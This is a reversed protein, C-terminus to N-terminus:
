NISNELEQEQKLRLCEDYYFQYDKYNDCDYNRRGINFEFSNKIDRFKTWNNLYTGYKEKYDKYNAIINDVNKFDNKTSDMDDQNFEKSKDFSKFLNNYRYFSSTLKLPEDLLDTKYQDKISKMSNHMTHLIPFEISNTQFFGEVEDKLKPAFYVVLKKILLESQKKDLLGASENQSITTHISSLKTLDFTGNPLADIENEIDKYDQNQDYDGEEQHDPIPKPFIDDWFIFLGGLLLM